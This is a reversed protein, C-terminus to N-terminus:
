INSTTGATKEFFRNAQKEKTTAIAGIVVCLHGQKLGYFISPSAM